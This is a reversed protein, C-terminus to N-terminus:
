IQMVTDKYYLNVPSVPLHYLNRIFTSLFRLQTSSTPEGDWRGLVYETWIM